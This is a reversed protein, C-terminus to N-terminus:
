LFRRATATALLRSILQRFDLRDDVPSFSLSWHSKSSPLPSKRKIKIPAFGIADYHITAQEQIESAVLDLLSQEANVVLDQRIGRRLGHTKRYLDVDEFDFFDGGEEILDLYPAVGKGRGSSDGTATQGQEARGRPVNGDLFFFFFGFVANSRYIRLVASDGCAEEIRNTLNRYANQMTKISILIKPEGELPWCVDFKKSRYPRFFIKRPGVEEPSVGMGAALKFRWFQEFRAVHKSDTTRLNRGKIPQSPLRGHRIHVEQM